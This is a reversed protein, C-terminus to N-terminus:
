KCAKWVAMMKDMLDVKLKAKRVVLHLVLGGVM